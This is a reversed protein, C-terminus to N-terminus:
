KRHIFDHNNRESDHNPCHVGSTDSAEIAFIGGLGRHCPYESTQPLNVVYKSKNYRLLQHIEINTLPLTLGHPGCNNKLISAVGYKVFLVVDAYSNNVYTHINPVIVLIRYNFSHILDVYNPNSNIRRDFEDAIITEDIYLQAELTAKGVTDFDGGSYGDAYSYGYGDINANIFILAPPFM